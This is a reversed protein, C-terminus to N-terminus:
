SIAMALFFLIVAESVGREGPLRALEAARGQEHRPLGCDRDSAASMVIALPLATLLTM